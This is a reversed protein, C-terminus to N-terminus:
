TSGKTKPLVIKIGDSGRFRTGDILSGRITLTTTEFKETSALSCRIMEEAESRDFKVMLDPIGDDDYDGMTTPANQIANISENLSITSVDIDELDFGEPLEIYCTIWKGKSILNLTDPTIDVIADLPPPPTAWVECGDNMNWTGAYLSNEFVETATIYWNDTDGFGGSSSEVWTVGDSSKWMECNGRTGAWLSDDFVILHRIEDNASDGFGDATVKEWSSGDITRWIAGASSPGRAVAMYMMDQFVAAEYFWMNQRDGFGGHSSLEWSGPEGTASRWVEGGQAENSTGVYLYDGFICVSTLRINNADGFGDTTISEWTLGDGTRWLTLAHDVSGGTGAYLYGKYALLAYVSLVEHDGSFGDTAVKQWTGTDGTTSRWIQCGSVTNHTGVYLHGNFSAMSEIGENAEDFSHAETQEWSLGNASRWLESWGLGGPVNTSTGAYLYGEFVRLARVYTVSPNGFGNTNVQVWEDPLAANVSILSYFMSISLIGAIVLASAKKM